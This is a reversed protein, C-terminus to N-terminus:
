QKIMTKNKIDNSANRNNGNGDNDADGDNNDIDHNKKIKRARRGKRMIMENIIIKMTITMTMIKM